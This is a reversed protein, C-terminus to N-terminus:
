KSLISTNLCMMAPAKSNATIYPKFSSPFKMNLFSDSPSPSMLSIPIIASASPITFLKTENNKPESTPSINESIILLFFLSPIMGNPGNRRIPASIVNYKLSMIVGNM